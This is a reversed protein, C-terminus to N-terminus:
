QEPNEGEMNELMNKVTERIWKAPANPEDGELFMELHEYFSELARKNSGIELFYFLKFWPRGKAFPYREDLWHQFMELNMADSSNEIGRDKEAWLFGSCAAWLRRTQSGGGLYKAPRQQFYDASIFSLFTKELNLQTLDIAPPEPCQVLDDRCEEMASDFLEFYLEFAKDEDDTLLLCLSEMNQRELKAKSDFWAQFRKRSLNRCLEPLGYFQLATEYGVFYAGIQEVSVYGIHEMPDERLRNLLTEYHM